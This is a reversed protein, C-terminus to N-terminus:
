KMATEMMGGSLRFIVAFLLFSSTHDFSLLDKSGINNGDSLKLLM